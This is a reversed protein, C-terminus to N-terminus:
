PRKIATSLTLRVLISKTIGLLFGTTLLFVGRIVRLRGRIPYLAYHQWAQRREAPTTVPAIHQFDAFFPPLFASM